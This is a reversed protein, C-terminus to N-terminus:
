HGCFGVNMKALLLIINIVRHVIEQNEQVFTEHRKLLLSNVNTNNSNVLFAMTAMKHPESLEHKEIDDYLHRTDKIFKGKGFISMKTEISFVACVDCYVMKSECCYSLWKRPITESPKREPSPKGDAEAFKTKAINRFYVRSVDFPITPSIPQVPHLKLWQLKEHIPSERKPIIFSNLKTLTTVKKYSEDLHLSSEDCVANISAVCGISTSANDVTSSKASMSDNNGDSGSVEKLAPSVHM